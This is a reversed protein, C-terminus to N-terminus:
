DGSLGAAELAEAETRFATGRILKGNRVQWVGWVPIDLPVGSVKGRATVRGRYFVRDTGVPDIREVLFHTQDFESDLDTWYEVMARKGRYVKRELSGGATVAPSWELEDTALAEIAKEDRVNLADLGAMIVAVNEESM